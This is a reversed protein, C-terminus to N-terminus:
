RQVIVRGNQHNHVIRWGTKLYSLLQDESIETFQPTTDFALGGQTINSEELLEKIRKDSMILKTRSRYATTIEKLYRRRQEPSMSQMRTRTEALFLEMEDRKPNIDIHRYAEVYAELQKNKPPLIYKGEIDSGSVKHGMWYKLIIPHVKGLALFTEFTKRLRHTSLPEDARKGLDRLMYGILPSTLRENVRTKKVFLPASESVDGGKRKRYDLYQKLADMTNPGVFTEYNVGEKARHTKIYGFGNGLDEIDGINLRLVDDQSM